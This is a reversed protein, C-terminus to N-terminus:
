NLQQTIALEFAQRAYGSAKLGSINLDYHIGISTKNFKM